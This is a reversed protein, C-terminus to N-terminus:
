RLCVLLLASSENNGSDLLEAVKLWLLHCAEPYATTLHIQVCLVSDLHDCGGIAEKVVCHLRHDNM